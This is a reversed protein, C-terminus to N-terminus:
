YKILSKGILKIFDDRVKKAEDLTAYKGLYKKKGLNYVNVEYSIKNYAKRETIYKEKTSGFRNVWKNIRKHLSHRVNELQTCWELNNINNNIRNEDIHNIFPKDQLNPIFAEAVLRHVQFSKRKGNKTLAIVKYGSREGLSLKKIRFTKKFQNTDYLSRVNGLNSIQYKGEYGKIDKWIEQM